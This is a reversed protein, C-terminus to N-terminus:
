RRKRSHKEDTGLGLDSLKKRLTNRNLGLIEAARLQNGSTHDMILAFLPREVRAIVDDYLNDLPYGEVRRLFSKLKARVMEEFAMEELPIREAVEPIVAAVDGAEVSSKRTKLVLRRAVDKLEAVNGPWPYHVFRDMAKATLKVRGRGIEDATQRVFHEVLRPIDAVRRRLPPITIRRAGLRDYLERDFAEADVAPTLDGDAAAIVRIDLTESTDERDKSGGHGGGHDRRRLVKALQKQPGRPLAGVDKLLLTGGVARRLTGARRTGAGDHGYLEQEILPRPITAAKVSVFDAGRRPGAYHIARAVLERGTGREGEILVPADADACEEIAEVVAAMEPSEGVILADRVGFGARSAM